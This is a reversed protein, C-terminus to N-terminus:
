MRHVSVVPTPEEFSSVDGGPHTRSQGDSGGSGGSALSAELPLAFSRQNKESALPHFEQM